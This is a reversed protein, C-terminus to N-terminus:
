SIITKILVLLVVHLLILIGAMPHGKDKYLSCSSNQCTITSALDLLHPLWLFVAPYYLGAPNPVDSGLSRETRYMAFYPSPPYMWFQGQQYCSPLHAGELSSMINGKITALYTELIGGINENSDDQPLNNM